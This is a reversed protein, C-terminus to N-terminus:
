NEVKDIHVCVYRDWRRGDFDGVGRLYPEDEACDPITVIVIAKSILEVQKETPIGDGCAALAFAVVLGIALRRM